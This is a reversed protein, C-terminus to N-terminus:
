TILIIIIIMMVDGDYDDENVPVVFGDLFLLAILGLRSTSM